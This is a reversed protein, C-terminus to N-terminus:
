LHEVQLASTGSRGIGSRLCWILWIRRRGYLRKAASRASDAPWSSDSPDYNTAFGDPECAVSRGAPLAGGVLWCSLSAYDIGSRRRCSSWHKGTRVSSVEERPAESPPATRPRNKNMPLPISIRFALARHCGLCDRALCSLCRTDIPVAFVCALDARGTARNRHNVSNTPSM